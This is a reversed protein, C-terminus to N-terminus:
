FDCLFFEHVISDTESCQAVKPFLIEEKTVCKIFNLHCLVISWLEFFLFRLFRFISKENTAACHADKMYIQGNKLPPLTQLRCIPVQSQASILIFNTLM